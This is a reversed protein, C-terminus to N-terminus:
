VQDAESDLRLQCAFELDLGFFAAPLWQHIEGVLQELVDETAEPRPVEGDATANV